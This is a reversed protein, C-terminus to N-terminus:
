KQEWLLRGIFRVIQFKSAKRDPFKRDRIGCYASAQTCQGVLDQDVRDQEYDSVMVYLDFKQGTGPSGRPLLMHDPWGCGCIEFEKLADGGTPRNVDQNRFTQDYPITVVSDSSRRNITNQGPRM